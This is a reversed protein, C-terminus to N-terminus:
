RLVSKRINASSASEKKIWTHKVSNVLIRQMIAEGEILFMDILSWQKNVNEMKHIMGFTQFFESM